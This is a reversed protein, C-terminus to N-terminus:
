IKKLSELKEKRIKKIHDESELWEIESTLMLSVFKKKAYSISDERYSPNLSEVDKLKIKSYGTTYRDLENVYVIAAYSGGKNNYYFGSRGTGIEEFNKIEKKLRKYKKYYFFSIVLFFVVLVSLTAIIM